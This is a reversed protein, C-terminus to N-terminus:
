LFYGATYDEWPPRRDGEPTLHKVAAAKKIILLDLRLIGLNWRLQTHNLRCALLFTRRDSTSLPPDNRLTYSEYLM